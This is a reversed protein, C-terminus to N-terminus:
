ATSAARNAARLMRNPISSVRAFRTSASARRPWKAAGSSVNVLAGGAGGYRTSMRKVAERACLLPGTVNVAPVSGADMADLRMQTELTAANNLLATVSGLESDVQRFLSIADAESAIDARVALARGSETEIACVAAEAAERRRSGPKRRYRDSCAHLCSYPTGFAARHKAFNM